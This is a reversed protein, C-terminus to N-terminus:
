FRNGRYNPDKAMNKNILYRFLFGLLWLALSIGAFIWFIIMMAFFISTQTAQSYLISFALGGFLFVMMLTFGANRCFRYLKFYREVQASRDSSKMKEPKADGSPKPADQTVSIIEAEIIKDDEMPLIILSFGNRLFSFPGVGSPM